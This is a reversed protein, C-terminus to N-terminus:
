RDAAAAPCSGVRRGSNRGRFSVTIEGSQAQGSLGFDFGNASYTGSGDVRVTPYRSYTCEGAASLKGNAMTFRSFRCQVSKSALLFRKPDAFDSASYCARYPPPSPLMGQAQEALLSSGNVEDVVYVVTHEWLGPSPVPAPTAALLFPLPIIAHIIRHMSARVRSHLRDVEAGPHKKPSRIL